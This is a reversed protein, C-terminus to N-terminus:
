KQKANDLRCNLIKEKIDEQLGNADVSYYEVITVKNAFNSLDLAFSVDYSQWDGKDVRYYTTACDGNNAQCNIQVDIQKNFFTDSPLISSSITTKNNGANDFLYCLATAAFLLSRDPVTRM